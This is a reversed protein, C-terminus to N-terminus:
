QLPIYVEISCGNGPVSKIKIEGNFESVRTQMNLFGVGKSKQLTDFGVGDDSITLSIRQEDQEMKMKVNKAEAYKIINHLQEQIIRYLNLKLKAPIKSEDPLHFQCDINLGRTIQIENALSKIVSAFDNEKFFPAILEHSLNRIENIATNLISSAKELFVQNGAPHTKSIDIYLRSSVLLQNINDHLERGIEQREAEQAAIVASTIEQQRKLEAKNLEDHLLQMKQDGITKETIDKGIAYILSNNEVPIVSWVVWKVAGNISVLRNEFYSPTNNDKLSAVKNSTLEHDEPHVFHIYPQSLIDEEPYGLFSTVAPNIKKAYGDTGLICIMDPSLTFFNKLEMETKKRRIDSALHSLLNNGMVVIENAKAKPHKSYFALVATVEDRFIVPVALVSCLENIRAFEQRLYNGENQIDAAFINKKQTWAAGILGERTLICDKENSYNLVGNLCCTAVMKMHADDISTVWAEAADIHYQRCIEVLSMQLDEELTNYGSFIKSIRLILEKEEEAQKREGEVRHKALASEIASPLRTLRDKLIYDSAGDKICQVAFEESVSGTVLIFPANLRNKQKEKNYINLAEVSNFAPLNHDSLIVDPQFSALANEFTTRTDVVFPVFSFGAKFLEQQILVADDESDELILIKLKKKMEKTEAVFHTSSINSRVTNM